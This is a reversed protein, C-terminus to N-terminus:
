VNFKPQLSKNNLMKPCQHFMNNWYQLSSVDWGSLDSEFDNCRDFMLSMTTVKGVDWHSLDCKFEWNNSFMYMMDTVNSTNWEDIKIRRIDYDKFLFSMDTIKSTDIFNLDADPGQIRLEQEIIARLEDKTVPQPTASKTKSTIKIRETIYTSLSM